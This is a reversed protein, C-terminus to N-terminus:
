KVKVLIMIDGPQGDTIQRANRLRIETGNEVGAPIKVRLKKSNRVLDKELGQAAQEKTIAIEYRVPRCRPRQAQQAQAFIEELNIGRSGGFRVGQPSSFVTFSFRKGKLSDSFVDDLFDFSLHAKRYSRMLDEVTPRTHSSAFIDGVDGVTGFQDYQKRKEPDGLVAYAENIEKFQENAEKQKGPNRDPHYKMALKRFASKIAKEDADRSVGLIEYYNKQRM